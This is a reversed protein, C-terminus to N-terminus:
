LLDIVACNVALEDSNINNGTRELMHGCITVSSSQHFYDLPSPSDSEYSAPQSKFRFASDLL